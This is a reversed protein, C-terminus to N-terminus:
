RQHDSRPLGRRRRRLRGWSRPTENGKAPPVFGSYLLAGNVDFFEIKTSDDHDVDTFVSGFGQQDGSPGHRPRLFSRRSRAGSRRSCGRLVPVRRVQELRDPRLNTSSPRRSEEKGSVQFGSGPTFFVVGRPSNKNFFNTPLNNPPPLGTRSVTGTSRARRGGTFTGGVGNNDGLLNRIGRGDGPHRRASIRSGGFVVPAAFTIAPPMLALTAIAISVWAVAAKSRNSPRQNTKRTERAM